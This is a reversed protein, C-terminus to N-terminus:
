QLSLIVDWAWRGIQADRADKVKARYRFQNGYQDVRKSNKYDLYLKKLGLAELTHLESPESVGNHNSDQWLRLSSFILDAETIVGDNNGGGGPKDYEALALFGNKAEGTPPEPQPTFNGFLEQGNDVTGNLNSDMVLWADDSQPTTWSLREAKGNSNLDFNVGTAANTLKFGDGTVDILIPTGCCEFGDPTPVCCIGIDRGGDGGDPLPTPTPTPSSEECTGTTFNWSGGISECGDQETEQPFCTQNAFSWFMGATQCAPQTSPSLAVLLSDDSSSAVPAAPCANQIVTRRFPVGLCSHTFVKFELVPGNVAQLNNHTSGEVGPVVATSKMTARNWVIWGPCGVFSTVWSRVVNFHTGMDCKAWGTCRSPVQSTAKNCPPSGSVFRQAHTSVLPCALLMTIAILKLMKNQFYNTECHLSSKSM